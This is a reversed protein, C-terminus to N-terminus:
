AIRFDPITKMLQAWEPYDALKRDNLAMIKTGLEPDLDDSVTPGVALRSLHPIIDPDGALHIPDYMYRELAPLDAIGVCYGHTYGEVPDGLHQGVASFSVSDVAATRRMLALVQAKQKESTEDRFGFRLLHVIM